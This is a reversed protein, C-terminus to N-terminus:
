SESYNLAICPGFERKPFLKANKGSFKIEGRGGGFFFREGGAKQVM